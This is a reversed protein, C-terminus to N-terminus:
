LQDKQVTNTTTLLLLLGKMTVFFKMTVFGKMTVDTSPAKTQVDPPPRCEQEEEAKREVELRIVSAKLHLLEWTRLLFITQRKKIPLPLPLSALSSFVPKRLFHARKNLVHPTTSRVTFSAAPLDEIVDLQHLFSGASQWPIITGGTKPPLQTVPQFCRLGWFVCRLM